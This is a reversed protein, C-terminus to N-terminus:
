LVTKYKEVTLRGKEEKVLIKRYEEICRETIFMKKM